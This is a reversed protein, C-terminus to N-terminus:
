ETKRSVEAQEFTPMERFLDAASQIMEMALAAGTGEGLRMDLDLIPKVKLYELITKYGGESSNHAFFMYEKSAPGLAIAISAAATCIYGDIVFPIRKSAAGLYFGALAAIEYGGFYQLIKLPEDKPLNWKRLATRIIAVKRLRGREDLGAGKGTVMEPDLEFLTSYIASASTTNGIGMDGGALLQVAESHSEEAFRIGAEIADVMEDHTMAPENLFNRTGDNIHISILDKHFSQSTIGMDVIKLDIENRKALVSIAAKKSLFNRIMQITVDQPYASVGEQVIGHDGAFVYLRKSGVDPIETQTMACIRCIIEELRGLSGQPKILNDWREQAENFYGQDVSEIKPIKM